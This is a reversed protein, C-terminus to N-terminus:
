APVVEPPGPPVLPGACLVQRGAVFSDRGAGATRSLVATLALETPYERQFLTDRGTHTWPGTTSLGFDSNRDAPNEVKSEGTWDRGAIPHTM